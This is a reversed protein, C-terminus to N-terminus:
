AVEQSDFGKSQTWNMNLAVYKIRAQLGTEYGVMSKAGYSFLGGMRGGPLKM